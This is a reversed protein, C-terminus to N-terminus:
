DASWVFTVYSAVSAATVSRVVDATLGLVVLRGTLTGDDASTAEPLGLVPVGSAVTVTTGAQPDTALVEIHDGIRLLAVQGPDSFRVPVASVGPLEAALETGMIRTPTIPEGTGIPGALTAGVAEDVREEPVIGAPMAVSRVDDAAVVTGAPLDRAAVAVEVLDPEAPSTARLGAAVAAM